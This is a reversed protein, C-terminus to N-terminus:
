LKRQAPLIKMRRSTVTQTIGTTTQPNTITSLSPSIRRSQKALNALFCEFPTLMHHPKADPTLKRDNFHPVTKLVRSSAYLARPKRITGSPDRRSFLIIKTDVFHGSSISENLAERLAPTCAAMQHRHPFAMSEQDYLYVILPAEERLNVKRPFRPLWAKPQNIIPQDTCFYDLTM